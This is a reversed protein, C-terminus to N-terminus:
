KNMLYEFFHLCDHDTQPKLDRILDLTNAFKIENSSHLFLHQQCVGLENRHHAIIEM